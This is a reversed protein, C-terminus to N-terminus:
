SLEARRSCALCARVWDALPRDLVHARAKEPDPTVRVRHAEHFPPNTLVLAAQEDVLGAARRSKPSLVDAEFVGARATLSNAAINECALACSEPDIEVLGITAAPARLAAMLGVAGAGSGIDLILGQQNAPTTAALLVADTGARHGRPAQRLRLRGELFLDTGPRDMARRGEWASPAAALRGFFASFVPIEGLAPGIPGIKRASREPRVQRAMALATLERWIECPRLPTRPYRLEARLSSLFRAQLAQEREDAGIKFAGILQDDLAGARIDRGDGLHRVMEDGGAAFAQAGHKDEGGGAHAAVLAVAMQLEGGADFEHMRRRQQMVIDHVLAFMRRPLIAARMNHPLWVQTSTPSKRSPWAKLIITSGPWIGGSLTTECAAATM